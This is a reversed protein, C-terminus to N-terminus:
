NVFDKLDYGKEEIEKRIFSKKNELSEESM